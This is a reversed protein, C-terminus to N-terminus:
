PSVVKMRSRWAKVQVARRAKEAGVESEVLRDFGIGGLGHDAHVPCMDITDPERGSIHGVRRAHLDCMPASCIFPENMIITNDKRRGFGIVQDCLLTSESSCWWCTMAQM